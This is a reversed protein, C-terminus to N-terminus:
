RLVIRKTVSVGITDLIDIFSLENPQTFLSFTLLPNHWEISLELNLSLDPALFPNRIRNPETASLHLLAQLFFETGVYKGMFVVTNNLYRALPSFTTGLTAGPLTDLLINQLINSRLSFMDLGLSSRITETLANTQFVNIYGLREAVNTAAAALHAVSYLNVQGYAGSPLISQGLIGLIENTSKAPISEFQPNLATFSAERLILFIEVRNGSSDYDTLKARLNIKPQVSPLGGFSETHLTLAGETIFFDKQFYYIEGSRLALSGDMTVEDTLHDYTFTLKEGESITAKIIPSTINPYLFTVGKDTTFNFNSSTSNELTYWYPLGRVGLSLIADSILLDGSIWTEFGKGWLNFNGEAWLKIDADYGLMPIWLYIPDDISEITVEYHDLGLGDLQARLLATGKVVNGTKRNTSFFPLHPSIARSGDISVSLNKLSIIDDYVWFTTMRSSDVSLQGYVKPSKMSGTLFVTGKVTGELFSFIPKLYTRDLYPLPLVIEEVKVGFSEPRLDAEVKAGIGFSPDLRASLTRTRYEYTGRLFSGEVTLTTGDSELLHTGGTFGGEGFILPEGITISASGIGQVLPKVGEPLMFLNEVEPLAVSGQFELHSLQDIYSLHRVHEFTGRILAEEGEIRLLDGTFTLEKWRFFSDYLRFSQGEAGIKTSLSISDTFLNASGSLDITSSLDSSGILTLDLYAGELATAFSGLSLGDTKIFSRLRDPSGIISTQIIPSGDRFISLDFSFPRLFRHKPLSLLPSGQYRADGSYTNVRDTFRANRILLEDASISLQADVSYVTPGVALNHTSIRDSEFLFSSYDDITLRAKGSISTHSVPLTFHFADFAITVHPMLTGQIKLAGEQELNFELLSLDVDLLFPYDMDFLHVEGAGHVLRQEKLSVDVLVGLESVLPTTFDLTMIRDARG